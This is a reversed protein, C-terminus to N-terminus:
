LQPRFLCKSDGSTARRPQVNSISVTRPTSGTALVMLPHLLAWVMM